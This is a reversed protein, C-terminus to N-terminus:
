YVAHWAGSYYKYFSAGVAPDTREWTSGAVPTYSPAGAGLCHTVQTTNDTLSIQAYCSPFANFSAGFIMLPFNQNASVLIWTIGDATTQTCNATTCTPADGVLATGDTQAEYSRGGSVVAQGLKIAGAAWAQSKKFAGLTNSGSVVWGNTGDFQNNLTQILSAQFIENPQGLSVTSVVDKGSISKGLSMNAAVVNNIAQTNPTFARIWQWTVTGDSCTGSTCTPASGSTTGSTTAVYLQLANTVYTTNAVASIGVSWASYGATMDIPATLTAAVQDDEVINGTANNFQSVGSFASGFYLGYYAVSNFPYGQGIDLFHAGTVTNHDGYLGVGEDRCYSLQGGLITNYSGTLSICNDGSSSLSRWVAWTITGDSCKTLPTGVPPSVTCAPASAGTVGGNTAIYIYPLGSGSSTVRDWQKVTLGASWATFSKLHIEPNVFTNHNANSQLGILELESDDSSVRTITNNASTGIVGITWGAQGSGFEDEIRNGNSNNITVANYTINEISGTSYYFGPSLFRIRKLTNDNSGNDIRIDRASNTVTIGDILARQTNNLKVIPTAAVTFQEVTVGGDINVDHLQPAVANTLDLATTQAPNRLLLQTNGFFINAGSPITLPASILCGATSAQLHLPKGLAATATIAAQLNSRDDTSGDCQVAFTATNPYDSLLSLLFRGISGVSPTASMGSIDGTSGGSTITIAPATVTGTFTPSALPAACGSVQADEALLLGQM